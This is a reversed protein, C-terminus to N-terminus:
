RSYYWVLEDMTPKVPLDKKPEAFPAPMTRDPVNSERIFLRLMDVM